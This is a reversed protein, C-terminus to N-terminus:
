IRTVQSPVIRLPEYELPKDSPPTALDAGLDFLDNQIAALMADIRAEAHLRALGICANTEDVCGYAEVRLDAKSRRPGATLGPTGSDGRRTESKNLKGM